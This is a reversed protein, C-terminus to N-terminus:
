QQQLSALYEDFPRPSAAAGNLLLNAMAETAAQDTPAFLGYLPSTPDVTGITQGASNLIPAPQPAALAPGASFLGTIASIASGVANFPAKILNAVEREGAKFASYIAYLVYAILGVALVMMIEKWPFKKM